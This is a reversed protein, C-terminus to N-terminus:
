SSGPRSGPASRSAASGRLTVRVTGDPLGAAGHRKTIASSLLRRGRSEREAGAPEAEVQRGGHIAPRALDILRWDLAGAAPIRRARGGSRRGAPVDPMALLGSLDVGRAKWHVIADDARLLDTRGVLDEFRPHRAAGHARAGRRRRPLLLQRRAGPTGAFRRRLEPDQTAIGVPCTNLHLRADDRLGGRDAARDLLGDRRRRAAGAIVVDRGTKLQGDTQV